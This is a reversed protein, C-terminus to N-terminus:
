SYQLLFIKKFSAMLIFKWQLKYIWHFLPTTGELVEHEIVIWKENSSTGSTNSCFMLDKVIQKMDVKCAVVGVGGRPHM